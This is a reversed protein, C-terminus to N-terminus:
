VALGIIGGFAGQILGQIYFPAKIFSDTAGVLRM